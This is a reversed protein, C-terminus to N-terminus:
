GETLLCEQLTPFQFQFENELLVSPTVRQSATLVQSGEGIMLRLAIAPAKMFAPRKLVRGLTRTFKRCTVQEPAVVNIPGEWDQTLSEKVVQCADQWAIWPWYQKGNGVPGGLGFRFLPLMKALAGGRKDLIIGFRLSVVRGSASNAAVEWESCLEGLFDNGAPDQETLIREGCDGYFGTASACVLVKDAVEAVNKTSEIRSSRLVQKYSTTWRRDVIGAGALHVIADCAGATNQWDGQTTIDAEIIELSANKFHEHARTANRTVTSVEHQSDLLAHVVRTGLLGTAGTVFIRMNANYIMYKNHM